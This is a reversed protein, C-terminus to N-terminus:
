PVCPRFSTSDGMRRMHPLYYHARRAGGPPSDAPHHGCCFRLGRQDLDSWPSILRDLLHQLAELTEALALTQGAVDLPGAVVLLRGFSATALRALRLAALLGYSREATVAGRVRNDRVVLKKYVGAGPDQLLLTEDGESENFEGASFLDIGTVKLKTSTVSGEYRAIGLTALHNAAVKAQDFLPAVLGYCINRHQACEGVAYIRPDYTQMTDSVVIGRECHIGAAEALAINPRIGAAMVVLDADAESGDAFRVGTVREEGLIEATQAEMLFGM